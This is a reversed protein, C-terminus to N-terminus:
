CCCVLSKETKRLASACLEQLAQEIDGEAVASGDEPPLRGSCDASDETHSCARLCRSSQAGGGGKEGTAWVGSDNGGGRLARSLSSAPQGSPRREGTAGTRGYSLTSSAVFFRTKGEQSSAAAALQVNSLAFLSRHAAACAIFHPSCYLFLLWLQPM